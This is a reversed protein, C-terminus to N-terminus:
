EEGWYDLTEQSTTNIGFLQYMFDEKENFIELILIIDDMIRYIFYNHEIFLMYYDCDLGYKERLSIGMNPFQKLGAITKTIRRSFESARVKGFKSKIEKKIEKRKSLAIESYAIKRPKM